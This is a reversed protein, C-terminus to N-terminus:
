YQEQYFSNQLFTKVNPASSNSLRMLSIRLSLPIECSCSATAQETELCVILAISFLLYSGVSLRANLSAFTKPVDTSLKNMLM